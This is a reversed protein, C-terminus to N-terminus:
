RGSGENAKTWLLFGAAAVVLLIGIAVAAATANARVYELARDGFWVTLLGL